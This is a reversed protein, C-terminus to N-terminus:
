MTFRLGVSATTGYNQQSTFGNISAQAAENIESNLNNIDLFIQLGAWPLKQRVALDMRFYDQTFGDQEAFAGINSISNGQFLFSLRASFGGLDYGIYANLVDNPQNILRGTRTRDLTVVRATRPPIIITTDNRWPYTASSWIHTYNIGLSIGDLFGPLYWLRTQFDVEVGRVYATYPSNVFTRLLAGDKPNISGAGTSVTYSGISDLGPPASPHLAYETAFSFHDIEKYFGGVSLLGLENNHLTVILDHNIAEAPVLNPNGAWVFFGTYDMNFHPSLQHYDPRALTQTYSYRVDGWSFADWKGQVMPLWYNNGPHVTVTDVAQRTADRGDALNYAVFTSKVEEWRVGGVISVDQGFNLNSMLYGAYCNELYEYQNPLRQYPGDFWGGANTGSSNIANVSPDSSVLGVIGNLITPDSMWLVGGFRDDLFSEYLDGNTSTFNSGPFYGAASDLVVPYHQMILNVMQTSIPSGPRIGAYPTGQENTHDNRRYEGGFKFFGSTIEEFNFPIKFDGKYVQDVEKYDASFESVNTLYVATDGLFRVTRSLVEPIANVETAGPIGGTQTFDFQPSGPAYNRSYTNAFKLETSMFGFDNTYELTNVAMDTKTEGERYRFNINHFQYDLITRYDKVDSNLRSLVNVSKLTGSPLKYDLILNGGFRERTELHRNLTMNTVIVPRFGDPQVVSSQPTYTASMNDADRDYSEVNALLYVGLDNEFFRDSASAVFRYNGYEGSKQTYGMQMLVDAKFEEPAERLQMNVYGGIANANMDPTLSKYVELSKFMYPTIMSLDVSRDTSITGTTGGQSAAGIQTSGTSALTIGSLAVQNFQPALGRIVVKNAEGSSQLTSVGPLRSLAQAANFDPLEQIRAESVINVIKDSSLQQNIAQLQGQGQATVVIEEGELTTAALRVDQTITQDETIAIPLEVTTYGIYSVVLTQPGAPVRRIVYNGDPTSASGLSTGKIALHAGPLKDKTSRDTVTGSVSGSGQAFALQM